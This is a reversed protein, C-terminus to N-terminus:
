PLLTAQERGRTCKVPSSVRVEGTSDPTERCESVVESVGSVVLLPESLTSSGVVEVGLSLETQTGGGLPEMPHPLADFLYGLSMM